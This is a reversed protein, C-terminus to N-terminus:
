LLQVKNYFQILNDVSESINFHNRKLNIIGQLSNNKRNPFSDKLDMIKAVWEDPSSEISEFQVFDTVICESTIKDSIISPIGSAQWELVVNPLGEFRSPFVMVDMGQLYDYVNDVAGLFHIKDLLGRQKAFDEIVMHLEGDGILVLVANPIKKILQEFIKILYTHNKQNNFKGVHGVVFKSEVELKKRINNRSSESFEFKALDKGNHLITFEKDGFLWKGADKGCAMRGTTLMNFPIKLLRHLIPHLCVTNRSHAIRVKIGALYGALLEISMLSSSGNVHLINYQGNKLIQKLHLIYKLSNKTRSPTLIMKIGIKEFARITELNSNDLSYTFCMQLDSKHNSKQLERCLSLWSSAIGNSDIGNTIINLVKLM